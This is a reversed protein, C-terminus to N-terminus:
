TSQKTRNRSSGKGPLRVPSTVVIEPVATVPEKPFPHPSSPRDPSNVPTIDPTNIREIAALQEANSLTNWENPGAAETPTTPESIPIEVATSPISSLKHNINATGLPTISM